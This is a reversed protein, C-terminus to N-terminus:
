ALQIWDIVDQRLESVSKLIIEGYIFVDVEEFCNRGKL